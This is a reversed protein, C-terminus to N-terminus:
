RRGSASRATCRTARLPSGSSSTIRAASCPSAPHRHGRTRRARDDASGSSSSRRTSAGSRGRVSSSYTPWSCTRSFRRTCIAAARARPSTSSWTSRQPGGPSPLVDSACTMAFSSPTRGHAARRARHELPRAVERRQEGVELAPLHEEDVLDVAQRVDDLLREIGAISSKWSSRTTPCPGVAREILSGSCGKQRIPAVVRAPSSVDGSRSRKPAVSGGRSRRARRSSSRMRAREARMRSTGSSAAPAASIARRERPVGRM